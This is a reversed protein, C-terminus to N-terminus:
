HTTANGADTMGWAYSEMSLVSHTIGGAIVQAAEGDARAGLAVLLPLFHEDTPHARQAHPALNRYDVLREIDHSTVAQRVWHTFEVAYAAVNAGSQRFEYLNHTMGGSNVIMVGQERLPALAQGLQYASAANLDYPISVQFVPLTAEPLLHRLPVWAGHDLGRREDFSVSLGAKDLLRAAEAAFQPHGPAPYHLDYLASPFGGFDHVTEPAATSMVKVDRTQWHPSVVLVAKVGTLQRGLATLKAGLVGPELAFTPAGHSIFFVPAKPSNSNM